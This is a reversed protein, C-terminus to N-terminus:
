FTLEDVAQQTGNVLQAGFAANPGTIPSAVGMKIQANAAGAVIFACFGVASVLARAVADEWTIQRKINRPKINRPKAVV